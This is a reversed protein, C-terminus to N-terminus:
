LKSEKEFIIKVFEIQAFQMLNDDEIYQIDRVKVNHKRLYEVFEARQKYPLKIAEFGGSVQGLEFPINNNALFNLIQMKM